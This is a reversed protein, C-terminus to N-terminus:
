PLGSLERIYDLRRGRPYRRLYEAALERVHAHDGARYAAEIQRALADQALTASSTLARARAYALEAERPRDLQTLLLSGLTFAALPAQPDAAHRTMVERLYPVAAETHGSLRAADAALLLEEVSRPQQSSSQLAQYAKPFDGQRAQAQWTEAEQEVPEAPARSRPGLQPAKARPPVARQARTRADRTQRQRAQTTADTPEGVRHLEFTRAQGTTLTTTTDRAHVAVRGRSVSVRLQTATKALEFATGLVEVVVDDAAVRFVRGPDPTVDVSVLGQQLEVLVQGAASPLVRARADASRLEVRSGDAFHLDGREDVPPSTQARDREAIGGRASDDGTREEHFTPLTMWGLTVAAALGAVWVGTRLARRARYRARARPLAQRSRADDWRSEVQALAKELQEDSPRM